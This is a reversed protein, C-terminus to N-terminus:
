LSAVDFGMRALPEALDRPLPAAFMLWAGTTPHAFTISAAHLALRRLGFDSAVARNLAGKGYNADGIVPHDLHKLHRRVQHLRGTKPFAEVVSFRPVVALRRIHTVADVRPGDEKSPIAHDVVVDEPAHGRVLAVYRKAPTGKAFADGLVRAADPNRAFVLVGSTGRDLRHVPHVHAGGIADRTIAMASPGKEWGPHTVLGSPKDVVIIADDQHLITIM